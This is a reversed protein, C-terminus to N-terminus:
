AQVSLPTGSGSSSSTTASQKALDLHKGYVAWYDWALNDLAKRVGPWNGDSYDNRVQHVDKKLVNQGLTHATQQAASLDGAQIAQGVAQFEQTLVPSEFPGADNPGFAALTNYAQQAASLDGADLAAMMQRGAIDEQRRRSVSVPPDPPAASVNSVASVSM